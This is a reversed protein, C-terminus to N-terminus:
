IINKGNITLQTIRRDSKNVICSASAPADLGAANRLRAHKTQAGWAFYFESGTGMNEVYPVDAASRDLAVSKIKEQCLALAEYDKIPGTGRQSSAGVCSYILGGVLITSVIWAWLPTAKATAATPQDHQVFNRNCNPCAQADAAIDTRCAPCVISKM